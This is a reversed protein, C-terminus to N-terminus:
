HKRLGTQSFRTPLSYLSRRKGVVHVKKGARVVQVETVYGMKALQVTEYRSYERGDVLYGLTHRKKNVIRAQIKM